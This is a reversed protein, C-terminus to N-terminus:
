FPPREIQTWGSAPNFGWNPGPYGFQKLWALGPNSTYYILGALRMVDIADPASGEAGGLRLCTKEAPGLHPAEGEDGRRTVFALLGLQQEGDLDAFSRALLEVCRAALDLDQAAQDLAARDVTTIFYEDSLHAYITQDYLQSDLAGPEDAATDQAGGGPLLVNVVAELTRQVDSQAPLLHRSLRGPALAGLGSLSGLWLFGRRTMLTTM